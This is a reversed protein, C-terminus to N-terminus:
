GLVNVIGGCGIRPGRHHALRGSPCPDPPWALGRVSTFVREEESEVPHQGIGIGGHSRNLRTEACLAAPGPTRSAIRCLAFVPDVESEGNNFGPRYTIEQAGRFLRLTVVSVGPM